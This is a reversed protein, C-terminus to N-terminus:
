PISQPALKPYDNTINWVNLFDWNVFTDQMKMQATSKGEGGGPSTPQGSTQLDWYSDTVTGATSRGVLGGASQKLTVNVPSVFATSYSADISGANNSGVLGGAITNILLADDDITVTGSAYSNEILGAKLDQTQPSTSEDPASYVNTGVLGGAYTLTSTVFPNSVARVTGSAFSRSITSNGSYAHLGGTPPYSFVDGTARSGITWTDTASGILGGGTSMATVRGSSASNIITAHSGSAGVLGGVNSALDGVSGSALSNSISGDACSGTFGGAFSSFPKQNIVKVNGSAKSETVLFNSLSGSLGGTFNSGQVSGTASAGIVLGYSVGGLAISAAGFLGGAAGNSAVDAASSVNYFVMEPLKDISTRRVQTKLSAAGVLGGVRNQTGSLSKVTGSVSVNCMRGSDMQGVLLGVTCGALCNATISGNALTLNKILSNEVSSFLGFKEDPTTSNPNMVLGSITKGGGDFISNQLALTKPFEGVLTLDNMLLYNGGPQIAMLESQTRIPTPVKAAQAAYTPLPSCFDTDRVLTTNASCNSTGGPGTVTALVESSVNPSYKVTDGSPNVPKGNVSASTIDGWTRLILTSSEGARLVHPVSELYCSPAVKTAVPKNDVIIDTVCTSTGGVGSISATYSRSATPTVTFTSGHGPGSINTDGFKFVDYVGEGWVFFTVSEGAKIRAPKPSGGTIIQVNCKPSPPVIRPSSWPAATVWATNARSSNGARDFAEVLITHSGLAVTLSLPSTCITSTGGDVSCKFVDLGSAGVDVSNFTILVDKQDIVGIPTVVIEPVKPAQTDVTWAFNPNLTAVNGANDYVKFSFTHDGEALNAVFPSTCLSFSTTDLACEYHSIGSDTDTSSLTLAVSSSRTYRTVNAAVQLGTPARTDIKWSYASPSSRNGAADIGVLELTHTGDALGTFVKPSVCSSYNGGDLKCEFLTIPAGADTGNFVFTAENLKTVAAPATTMFIAPATLDISWDHNLVSSTNGALDVTRVRVSHPGEPLPGLQKPSSCASFPGGDISCESKLEVSSSMNDSVSFTLNDSTLSTAAAPGSVLSVLPSSRDVKFVVVKDEASQGKSDELHVKISYTGDILDVLSHTLSSCDVPTLENVQCTLRSISIRPDISISIKVDLKGTSSWAPLPEISVDPVTLPTILFQADENTKFGASCNQFLTLSPVILLTGLALFTLRHQWDRVMKFRRM